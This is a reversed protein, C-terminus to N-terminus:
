EPDEGHPADNEAAEDAGLGELIDVDYKQALYDEEINVFLSKLYASTGKEGNMEWDSGVCIVDASAIDAWDLVEVTGEDLQTRARSTMMMIRPPKYEFKVKVSIYPKEVPDEDDERPNLYKVNWGDDMMTKAVEPDLMVAFGREGEKNYKGKEGKFNLFLLEADEVMFEKRTKAM